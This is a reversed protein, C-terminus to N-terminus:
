DPLTKADTPQFWYICSVLQVELRDFLTGQERHNELCTSRKTNYKYVYKYKCRYKYKYKCIYKPKYKSCSVLQVELKDFLTGQERHNELKAVSKLLDAELSKWFIKNENHHALLQEFLKDFQKISMESFDTSTIKEM